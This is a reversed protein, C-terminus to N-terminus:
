NKLTFSSDIGYFDVTNQYLQKYMENLPLSKIEAIKRISEHIMKPHTREDKFKGEFPWPGDTEVMMLELPYQEILQQIELEYLCDPTVSIYCRNEILRQITAASGKFWHFHAKRVAYKELLDCAIDADEYIAHLIIPKDLKVALRIFQELMEIYPTLSLTADKKRSYYPLGVEGIAVIEEKHKKILTFIKELQNNDPLEQEPHFGIASKIRKDKQALQLNKRASEAHNSVSLLSDVHFLELEKLMKKRSEESYMDLHIHADIIPQKM